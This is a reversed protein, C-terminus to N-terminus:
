QSAWTPTANWGIDDRRSRLLYARNGATSPPGAGPMFGAAKMCGGPTNRGLFLIPGDRHPRSKAKVKLRCDRHCVPGTLVAAGVATIIWGVVQVWMRAAYGIRGLWGRDRLPAWAQEQGLADLPVFLDLAYLRATFTEYDPASKATKLWIDLPMTCNQTHPKGRGWEAPQCANPNNVAALWEISTLIVDSNSAM